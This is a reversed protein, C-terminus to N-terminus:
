NAPQATTPNVQHPHERAYKLSSGAAVVLLLILLNILTAGAHAKPPQKGSLVWLALAFAVCALLLHVGLFAHSLPVSQRYAPWNLIANYTGTLLFILIGLHVIMKFSKRCRLFVAQRTEADSIHSLGAPLILRMVVLGGLVLCAAVVHLWRALIPVIADM